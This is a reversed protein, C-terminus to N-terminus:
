KGPDKRLLVCEKNSLQGEEALIQDREANGM